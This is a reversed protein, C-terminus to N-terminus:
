NREDIRIVGEYINLEINSGGGNVDYIYIDEKTRFAKKDKQQKSNSAGKSIFKRSEIREIYPSKIVMKRKESLNKQEQSLITGNLLKFSNSQKIPQNKLTSKEEFCSSAFTVSEGKATTILINGKVLSVAMTRKSIGKAFDISVDGYTQSLSLPGKVDKLKINGVRNSIIQIEGYLKNVNVKGNGQIKFSISMSKPLRIDIKKIREGERPKIKFHFIDKEIKMCDNENCKYNKGPANFVEAVVIISDEDIGNVEIDGSEIEASLFRGIDISSIKLYFEEVYTSQGFIKSSLLTFIIITLLTLRKM